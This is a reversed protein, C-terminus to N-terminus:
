TMGRGPRKPAPTADYEDVFYPFSILDAAPDYLAIYFNLAPMLEGVIRHIAAYLERLTPATLAAEAIAYPALKVRERADMPRHAARKAM